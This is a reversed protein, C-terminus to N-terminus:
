DRRVRRGGRVVRAARRRRARLRVGSAHALRPLRGRSRRGGGGGRRRRRRRRREFLRMSRRRGALWAALSGPDPAAGLPYVRAIPTRVDTTADASAAASGSGTESASASTSPTGSGTRAPFASPLGVGDDGWGGVVVDVSVVGVAASPGTVPVAATPRTAPTACGIASSSEVRAAVPGVSGVRCWAAEASAPFSRGSLRVFAGGAAAVVSPAVSTVRLSAPWAVLALGFDSWGLAHSGVDVAFARVDRGSATAAPPAECAALTSSVVTATPSRRAVADAGAWAFLCRVEAGSALYDDGTIWAVYGGASPGERPAVARPTPARVYAFALAVRPAGALGTSSASTRASVAVFGGGPRAGAVCRFRFGAGTVERVLTSAFGSPTTRRRASFDAAAGGGADGVDVAGRCVVGREGVGLGGRVGRRWVRRRRRPARDGAVRRRRRGPRARRPVGGPAFTDRGSRPGSPLLRRPGPVFVDGGGVGNGGRVGGRERGPRRRGRCGRGRRERAPRRGQQFGRGRRVRLRVDDADRGRLLEFVRIGGRRSPPSQAPAPIGARARARRRRGSRAWTSAGDRGGVPEGVRGRPRRRRDGDGAGRVCDVGLVRRAGVRVVLFGFRRWDVRTIRISVLGGRPPARRHGVGRRRGRFGRAVARRRSPGVGQRVRVVQRGEPHGGAARERPM